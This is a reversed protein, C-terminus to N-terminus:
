NNIPDNYAKYDDVLTSNHVQADVIAKYLEDPKTLDVDVKTTGTATYLQKVIREDMEVLLTEIKTALVQNFTGAEIDAEITTLGNQETKLGIFRM